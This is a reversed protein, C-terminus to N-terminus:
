FKFPKFKPMGSSAGFPNFGQSRKVVKKKAVPNYRRQIVKHTNSNIGLRNESKVADREDKYRLTMLRGSKNSRYTVAFPNEKKFGKISTM